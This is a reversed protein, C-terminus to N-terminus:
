NSQRSYKFLIILFLIYGVSFAYSIATLYELVSLSLVKGLIFCVISGLIFVLQFLLEINQKNAIVMGLSVSSVIFRLGFMPALVVVYEGAIAWEVGFIVEFLM